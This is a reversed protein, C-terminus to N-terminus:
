SHHTGSQDGFIAVLNRELTTKGTCSGDTIGIFGEGSALEAWGTTTGLKGAIDVRQCLLPSPVFRHAGFFWTM